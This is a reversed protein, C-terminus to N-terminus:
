IVIFFSLLDKSVKGNETIDHYNRLHITANEIPEDSMIYTKGCPPDGSNEVVKCIMVKCRTGKIEKIGESWYNWIQSLKKPAPEDKNNSVPVNFFLGFLLLNFFM